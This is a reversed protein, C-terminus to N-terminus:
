APRARTRRLVTGLAQIAAGIKAAVPVRRVPQRGAADSRDKSGIQLVAGLEADRCIFSAAFLDVTM